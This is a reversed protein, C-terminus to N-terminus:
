RYLHSLYLRFSSSINTIKYLFLVNNYFFLARNKDLDSNVWSKGLNEILYGRTYGTNCSMCCLNVNTGSLLWTKICKKCFISSCNKNQCLMVNKFSTKDCCLDCFNVNEKKIIHDSMNIEDNIKNILNNMKIM